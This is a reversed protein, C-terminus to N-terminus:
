FPFNCLVHSRIEYQSVGYVPKSIMQALILSMQPRFLEIIAEMSIKVIKEPAQPAAFVM